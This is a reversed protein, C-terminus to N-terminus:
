GDGDGGADAPTVVFLNFAEGGADAFAKYSLEVVVSSRWHALDRPAVADAVTCVVTEGTIANQITLRDGLASGPHVCYHGEPSYPFSALDLQGWIGHRAIIREWGSPSGRDYSAAYYAAPGVELDGPVALAMAAVPNLLTAALLLIAMVM